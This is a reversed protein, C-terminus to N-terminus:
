AGFASHPCVTCVFGLHVAMSAQQTCSSVFCDSATVGSCGGVCLPDCCELTANDATLFCRNGGCSAPCVTRTVTARLSFCTNVTVMTLSIILTM